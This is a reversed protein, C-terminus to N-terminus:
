LKHKKNVGRLYLGPAAMAIGLAFSFVATLNFGVSVIDLISPIYYGM